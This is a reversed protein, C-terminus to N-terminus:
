RIVVNGRISVPGSIAVGLAEVPPASGSRVAPWTPAFGMGFIQGPYKGQALQIDTLNSMGLNNGVSDLNNPSGAANWGTKDWIAGYLGDATSKNPASLNNEYYQTIGSFGEQNLQRYAVAYTVLNGTGCAPITWIFSEVVGGISGGSECNGFVRGYYIAQTNPDFGYTWLWTAAGASLGTFDTGIAADLEKGYKFQTNQIGLMFPQQGYGTLNNESQQKSGTTGAFNRDLTLSTSSNFICNYQQKGSDDSASSMYSTQNPAADSTLIPALTMFSITGTSGPWLSSIVGTTSNTRSFQFYRSGLQISGATASFTSGTTVVNSGSIVNATGAEIGQCRGSTFGTGTVATNGNTVGVTVANTNNIYGNAWSNTDVGGNSRKCANQRFYITGTGTGVFTRWYSRWSLGGPADTGSNTDHVAGLVPFTALYGAERTDLGGDCSASGVQVGLTFWPRLDAMTPSGYLVSHATAGIM